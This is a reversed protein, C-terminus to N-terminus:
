YKIYTGGAGALAVLRQPLSRITNEIVVLPIRRWEQLCIAELGVLSQPLRRRVRDKLYAWIGETPNLDPSYSPWELTEIGLGAKVETAHRSRHVASNDEQLIPHRINRQTIIEPIYQRLIEGYKLANFRGVIHHLRGQGHLSICGWFMLSPGGGKVRRVVYKSWFRKHVPRRVRHRRDTPWLELKTEDTWIVHGWFRMDRGRWAEAYELRADIDQGRLVPKWAPRRSHLGHMLAIRRITRGSIQSRPDLGVNVLPGVQMSSLTPDQTLTRIVRNEMQPTVKKPRGPRPKDELSQGREYLDELEYLRDRSIGTDLSIQVVTEQSRLRNAMRRAGEYRREYSITRSDM